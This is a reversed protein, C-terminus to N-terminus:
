LREVIGRASPQETEGHITKKHEICRPDDPHEDCYHSGPPIEEQEAKKQGPPQQTLGTFERPNRFLAYAIKDWRGQIFGDILEGVNKQIEKIQQPSPDLIESFLRSGIQMTDLQLRKQGKFTYTGLVLGVGGLAAQAIKSGLQTLFMDLPVGILGGLINGGFISSVTENDMGAEKAWGAVFPDLM